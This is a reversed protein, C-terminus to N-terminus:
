KIMELNLLVVSYAEIGESKGAIGLGNGSKGKISIKSKEINLIKALKEKMQEKYDVIRVINTIITIDINLIEFTCRNKLFILSKKLIETSRIGKYEETPPFLEGISEIGCASFLADMFAHLAADGDSHGLLRPKKPIYIGCLYLGETDSFPHVDYGFGIRLM